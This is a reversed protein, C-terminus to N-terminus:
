TEDCCVDECIHKAVCGPGWAGQPNLNLRLACSQLHTTRGLRAGPNKPSQNIRLVCKCIHTKHSLWVGLTGPAESKDCCVCVCVCRHLPATRSFMAWLTGPSWTSGCIVHTCIHTAAINPDWSLCVELLVLM